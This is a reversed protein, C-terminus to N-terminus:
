KRRQKILDKEKNTLIKLNYSYRTCDHRDMNIYAYNGYRVRCLLQFKKYEPYRIKFLYGRGKVTYFYKQKYEKIRKYEFFHKYFRLGNLRLRLNKNLKETILRKHLLKNYIRVKWKRISYSNRKKWFARM